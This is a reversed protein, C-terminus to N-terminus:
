GIIIPWTITFTNLYYKRDSNSTRIYESRVDVSAKHMKAIKDVIYLGVGTGQSNMTSAAVGRCGLKFISRSEIELRPIEPGINEVSFQLKKNIEFYRVRIENRSAGSSRFSYKIANEILNQLLLKLLTPIADLMKWPNFEQFRNLEKERFQPENLAFIENIMNHITVRRVQNLMIDPQDGYVLRMLQITDNVNNINTSLRGVTEKDYEKKLNEIDNVAGHIPTLLKHTLANIYFSKESFCIDNIIRIVEELQCSAEGLATLSDILKDISDKQDRTLQGKNIAAISHIGIISFLVWTNEAIVVTQVNAKIGIKTLACNNKSLELIISQYKTTLLNRINITCKENTGTMVVNRGNTYGCISISTSPLMAAFAAKIIQVDTM